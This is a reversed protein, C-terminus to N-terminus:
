TLPLVSSLTAPAPAPVPMTPQLFRISGDLEVDLTIQRLTQAWDLVPTHLKFYGAVEVPGIYPIRKRRQYRRFKYYNYRSWGFFILGLVLIVQLTNLSFEVFDRGAGPSLVQLQFFQIGFTWALLTIVPLILYMWLLWALLTLVSFMLRQRGYQLDPRHIILPRNM